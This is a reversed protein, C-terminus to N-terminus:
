ITNIIETFTQKFFLDNLEWAKRSAKRMAAIEKDTLDFTREIVQQFGKQDITHLRGFRSKRSMYTPCLFGDVGDTVMADMPPADTTIVIGGCSKAEWIYHGFGEYESPCLHFTCKNQLETLIEQPMRQFYTYINENAVQYAKFDNLKSFILKPYDLKWSKFVTDTGKAKSQGATHIYVREDESPYDIYNDQSTFSTYVCKNSLKSFIRLCDLTKCMILDIGNLLAPYDFWEPNPFFLNYNAYKYYRNNLIEFFINIDAPEPEKRELLDILTCKHNSLLAKVIRMDRSLGVGNDNSILNIKM